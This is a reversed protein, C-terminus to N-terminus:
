TEFVRFGGGEQWLHWTNGRYVKYFTYGIKKGKRLVNMIQEFPREEWVYGNRYYHDFDEEISRHCCEGLPLFVTYANDGNLTVNMIAVPTFIPPGFTVPSSGAICSNNNVVALLPNDLILWEGYNKKFRNEYLTEYSGDKSEPVNLKVININNWYWRGNTQSIYKFSKIENDHYCIYSFRGINLVRSINPLVRLEQMTIPVIDYRYTTFKAM